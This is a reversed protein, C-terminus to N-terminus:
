VVSKRDIWVSLTSSCAAMWAWGSVTRQAQRSCSRPLPRVGTSLNGARTLLTADAERAMTSGEVNTISITRAGRSAAERLAALTDATEGSQSLVLVSPTQQTDYRRYPYESAYEVDVAVRLGLGVAGLRDIARLEERAQALADNVQQGGLGVGALEPPIIENRRLHRKLAFLPHNKFDQINTPIPESLQKQSLEAVELHDRDLLYPRTFIHLLQRYWTEGHKTSTLRHPLTKATFHPAYRLTVDTAHATADFALVYTQTNLPDSFPPHLKTPKNITLTVLPDIPIWKQVSPSWAETWYIPFASEAATATPAPPPPAPPPPATRLYPRLLSPRQSPCPTAPPSNSSIRPKPPAPKRAKNAFTFPLVQLSCVLRATIGSGRLMACFLQAGVDRSGTLKKSAKLFDDKTFVNEM